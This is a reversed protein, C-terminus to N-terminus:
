VLKDASQTEGNGLASSILRDILPIEIELRGPGNVVDGLNRYVVHEKDQHPYDATMKFRAVEEFQPYLFVEQLKKMQELGTWFDPQAVVYHVGKRSILDAIEAQSLSSEEVGLERRIKKRLQLKDARIVSPDRRDGRSSLNFIFAGDRYGSFLVNSHEPASNAVGSVLDDYGDVYPAPHATISYALTGKGASPSKGLRM